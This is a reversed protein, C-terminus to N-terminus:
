GQRAAKLRSRLRRSFGFAAGAGLVPLPGPVDSPPPIFTSRQTFSNVFRDLVITDGANKVISYDDIVAISTFDGTFVKPPVNAGNQSDLTGVIYGNPLNKVVTTNGGDGFKDSDLGVDKFVYGLSPDAVELTYKFVGASPSLPAFLDPRFDVVVKWLDDAPGVGFDQWTFQIVGSGVTPLQYISSDAGNLTLLKDGLTIPLAKSCPNNPNTADFNCEFFGEAMASSPFAVFCGGCVFAFVGALRAVEQSRFSKLHKSVLSSTM